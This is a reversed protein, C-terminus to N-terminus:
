ALKASNHSLVICLHFLPLSFVYTSFCFTGCISFLNHHVNVCVLLYTMHVILRFHIFELVNSNLCYSFLFHLAGHMCM